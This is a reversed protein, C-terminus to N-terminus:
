SCHWLVVPRPSQPLRTRVGCVCSYTGDLLRGDERELPIAARKEGCCGGPRKDSREVDRLCSPGARAAPADHRRSM